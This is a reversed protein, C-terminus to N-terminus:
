KATRKAAEERFRVESVIYHDRNVQNVQVAHLGIVTVCPSTCDCAYMHEIVDYWLLGLLLLLTCSTMCVVVVTVQLRQGLIRDSDSTVKSEYKVEQM